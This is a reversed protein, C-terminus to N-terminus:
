LSGIFEDDTFIENKEYKGKLLLVVIHTLEELTANLVYLEGTRINFLKFQKLSLVPENTYVCKWLWAYTIFQLFHDMTLEKVFKLEWVTNETILDLRATFRIKEKFSHQQLLTDIHIHKDDELSHIFTHEFSEISEQIYTDMREKCLDIMEPQLWTYENKEIQKIKFYLKEQFAVFVNAMYLYDQPTKCFPSLGRFIRKLFGYEYEKMQSVNKQICQYLINYPIKQPITQINVTTLFDPNKSILYDYYICPIAIGNLDSVDEFLGNSLPVVTPVDIENAAHSTLILIHKLLPTIEDIVNEPIFKILDTPSTFRISQKSEKSSKTEVSDEYFITQPTGKFDVFELNKM